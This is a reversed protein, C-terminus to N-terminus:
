VAVVVVVVQMVVLVVVVVTDASCESFAITLLFVVFTFLSHMFLYDVALGAFSVTSDFSDTIIIGILYLPISSLVPYLV